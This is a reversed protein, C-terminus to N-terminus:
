RKDGFAYRGSQGRYSRGRFRTGNAGGCDLKAITRSRWFATKRAVGFGQFIPILEPNSLVVVRADFPADRMANASYSALEQGWLPALLKDDAGFRRSLGAALTIGVIM